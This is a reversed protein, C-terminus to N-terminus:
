SCRSTSLDWHCPSSRGSVDVIDGQLVFSQTEADFRGVESGEVLYADRNGSMTLKIGTHYAAPTMDMARMATLYNARNLGGELMGAVM